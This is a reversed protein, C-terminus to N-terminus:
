LSVGKKQEFESCSLHVDDVRLLRQNLVWASVGMAIGIM